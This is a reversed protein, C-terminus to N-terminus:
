AGAARAKGKSAPTQQDAPTLKKTVFLIGSGILWGALTLVPFAFVLHAAAHFWTKGDSGGSYEPVTYINDVGTAIALVVVAATFLQAALSQLGVVGLLQKYSGFRRRHVLISSVVLGVLWAGTLSFYKASSISVGALSLALRVLGVILIFGL